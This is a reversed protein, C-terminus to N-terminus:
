PHASRDAGDNGMFACGGVLMASAVMKGIRSFKM